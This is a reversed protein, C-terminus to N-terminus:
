AGGGAFLKKMRGEERKRKRGEFWVGEIM